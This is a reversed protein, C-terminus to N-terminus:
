SFVLTRGNVVDDGDPSVDGLGITERTREVIRM